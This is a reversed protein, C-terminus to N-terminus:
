KNKIVNTINIKSIMYKNNCKVTMKEIMKIVYTKLLM